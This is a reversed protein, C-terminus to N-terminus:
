ISELYNIIESHKNQKALEIAWNLEIEAGKDLLYKVMELQGYGASWKVAENGKYHINGGLEIMEEVFEINGNHAYSVLAENIYYNDRTKSLVYRTIDPKNHSLSINFVFDNECHIDYGNEVLDKILNLNYSTAAEMMTLNKERENLQNM